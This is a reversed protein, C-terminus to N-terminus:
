KSEMRLETDNNMIMTQKQGGADMSMTTDTHEDSSLQLPFLKTLDVSITATSKNAMKVLDAKMQPMMPNPIKQKGARQVQVVKVTALDGDLATLEYTTTREANAGQSKVKRKVEWKAGAGVPEAPFILGGTSVAEKMQEIAGKTTPDAGAPIKADVKKVYGSDAIRCTIELKQLASFTTKMAAVMQPNAAAEDVLGVESIVIEYDVDGAPSVSRTSAAMEMKMGPMKITALADPNQGMSVSSTMIMVAGQMDGAKSRYKLISRPEAGAKTVKIEMNGASAPKAAGTAKPKQVDATEGSAAPPTFAALKETVYELRYSVMEARWKPNAKRLNLLATQAEKYKAKALEAKGSKNLSDAEEIVSRIELYQDDQGAVHSPLVTTFVALLLILLCKM